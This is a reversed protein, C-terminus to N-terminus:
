AAEKEPWVNRGLNPDYLKGGRMVPAARGTDKARPLRYIPHKGKEVIQLYAARLLKRCYRAATDNAVRASLSLDRADFRKLVKMAAWMRDASAPPRRRGDQMVEPRRAGCDRKLRYCRGRSAGAAEIYGAKVLPSLFGRIARGQLRTAARLDDVRFSKLRRVVQWLGDPTAPARMVTRKRARRAPRATTVPAPPLVAEPICYVPSRDRATLLLEIKGERVLTELEERVARTFYGTAKVLKELTFSDLEKAKALLAAKKEPSFTM